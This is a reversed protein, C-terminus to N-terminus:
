AEVDQHQRRILADNIDSDKRAPMRAEVSIPMGCMILRDRLKKAAHRGPYVSEGNEDLILNGDQDSLPNPDNDFIIMVREDKLMYNWDDRWQNIGPISIVTGGFGLGIASLGDLVGENIIVAKGSQKWIWPIETSCLRISKPGFKPEGVSRFEMSFVFGDDSAYPFLIPRHALSGLLKKDIEGKERLEITLCSDFLRYRDNLDDPLFAIRGRLFADKLIDLPIGREKTIYDFSSASNSVEFARCKQFVGSLFRRRADTKEKKKREFERKRSKAAEVRIKRQEDSEESEGILDEVAEAPKMGYASVMLDIPNGGIGCKFCYYSNEGLDVQFPPNKDGGGCHPCNSSRLKDGSKHFVCGMNELLPVIPVGRADQFRLKWKDPM